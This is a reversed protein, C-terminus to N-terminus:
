LSAYSREDQPYIFVTSEFVIPEHPIEEHVLERVKWLGAAMEKDAVEGLVRDSLSLLIASHVKEELEAYKESEELAKIGIIEEFPELIKALGQQQLLARM